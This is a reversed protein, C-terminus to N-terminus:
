EAEAAGAVITAVQIGTLREHELLAQAVAQIERQLAPSQLAQWVRNRAPRIHDEQAADEDDSGLLIKALGMMKNQDCDTMKWPAGGDLLESVGSYEEAALGAAYVEIGEVGTPDGDWFCVGSHKEGSVITAGVLKIKYRLGIVAHGAEHFATLRRVVVPDEASV